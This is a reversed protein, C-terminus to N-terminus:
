LIIMHIDSKMVGVQKFDKSEKKVFVVNSKLGGASITVCGSHICILQGFKISHIIILKIILM